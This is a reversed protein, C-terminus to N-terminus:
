RRKNIAVLDIRPAGNRILELSEEVDRTHTMGVLACDVEPTSLVFRIALRALRREDIDPFESLMLRQLVGSTTARMVMVGVGMQRALPIVGFPGWRYDCSQQHTFGYGIQLTDFQRSRVLSEVAGSPTEATLGAFRIRGLSKEERFWEPVCSQLLKNASEDTFNLGHVQLIDVHDTQLRQLSLSLADSLSAPTDGDKPMFKTGLVIKDRVGALGKGFLTEGRGSGYNAASDFYNIGGRFAANIASLAQTEFAASSRDHGDLYGDIGIAAGGFGIASIRLGTRGLDRQDM